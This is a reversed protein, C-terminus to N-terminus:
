HVLSLLCECDFIMIGGGLYAEDCADMPNHLMNGRHSGINLIGPAHLAGLM